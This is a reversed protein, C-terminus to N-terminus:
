GSTITIIVSPVSPGITQGGAELIIKDNNVGWNLAIKDGANLDVLFNWAAVHYPNNSSVHVVTNTHPQDVGNKELWLEFNTGAGGGSSHHLQLSFELNYIGSFSPIINAGDNTFGNQFDVNNFTVYRPTNVNATQNVNSFYSATFLSTLSEVTAVEWKANASNYVLVDNDSPNKVIDYNTDGMDYLFYSGSGPGHAAIKGIAQELFKLKKQVANFNKEVPTPQPQQFSSAEFQVEKHIHNVTKSILDSPKVTETRPTDPTSAEEVTTSTETAQTQVLENSEEKIIGLLEEFTPPKPYEINVKKIIDVVVRSADFLDNITNSRISEKIEEQLQNYRDVEEALATDIPENMARSWRVLLQKEKINKM